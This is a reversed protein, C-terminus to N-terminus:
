PRIEKQNENTSNVSHSESAAAEPIQAMRKVACRVCCLRSAIANADHEPTDDPLTVTFPQRCDQCHASLIM